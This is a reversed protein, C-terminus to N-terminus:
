GLQTLSLKILKIFHMGFPIGIITICLLLGLILNGVTLEIGSVLFWVINLLCSDVGGPGRVGRTLISQLRSRRHISIIVYKEDIFGDVTCKREM